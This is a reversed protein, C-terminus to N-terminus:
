ANRAAQLQLRLDNLRRHEEQLEEIEEEDSDGELATM